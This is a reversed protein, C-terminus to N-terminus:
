EVHIVKDNVSTAFELCGMEPQLANLYNKKTLAAIIELEVDVRQM